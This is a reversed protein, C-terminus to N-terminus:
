AWFIDGNEGQKRALRVLDRLASLFHLKEDLSRHRFIIRCRGPQERQIIEEDFNQARIANRRLIVEGEHLRKLFYGWDGGYSGMGDETSLIDELGAERITDLQLKVDYSLPNPGRGYVRAYCGM